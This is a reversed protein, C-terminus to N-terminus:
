FIIVGNYSKTDESAEKMFQNSFNSGFVLEHLGSEVTAVGCRAREMESVGTAQFLLKPPGGRMFDM